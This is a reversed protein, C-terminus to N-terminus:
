DARPLRGIIIHPGISSGAPFSVDRLTVGPGVICDEGLVTRGELITGPRLRTRVGIQVHPGIRVSHPEEIIVGATLHQHKIRRGLAEEVLSLDLADNIGLFETADEVLHATVRRGDELLHAITDTLYYEGQANDNKLKGVSDRLWDAQFCYTGTNVERIARQQETADKFEVIGMVNGDRDRTIRGYHKPEALEMTAVVCSSRSRRRATILNRFCRATILPADGCTVIVEGDFGELLPLACRVAHGTGLRERQWAIEGRNGVFDVVQEGLHGAVVILRDVGSEKLSDLVYGLMPEGLVPTLVKPLSSKMRTGQGAALVIAAIAHDSM